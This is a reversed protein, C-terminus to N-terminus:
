RTVVDVLPESRGGAEADRFCTLAVHPIEPADDEPAADLIAAAVERATEAAEEDDVKNVVPVVTADDPVGKLGGDPHAIVAAVDEPRITEGLERDTLAAVREPRHVTEEGLPQGVAAVSVVPLVTDACAPIQPERENPAKFERMRAGDAKVLVSGATDGLDIAEAIEAIRETDYGRYRDPREQEPVLGLPWDAPSDLTTEVAREPSDTIQVRGVESDFIPIRVTATVVARDSRAALAYLTSKKGGAGVACVVRGGAVGAREASGDGGVVLAETLDM